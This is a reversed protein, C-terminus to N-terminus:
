VVVAMVRDIPDRVHLVCQGVFIEHSARVNVCPLHALLKSLLPGFYKGGFESDMGISVKTFTTLARAVLRIM